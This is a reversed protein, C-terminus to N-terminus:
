NAPEFAPKLGSPQVTKTEYKEKEIIWEKVLDSRVIDQTGFEVVGFSAMRRAIAVLKFFGTTERKLDDQACDGCFLIKCNKGVRTIITNIEQHDMNQIEDVIVICDRLTTGRVYSTTIFEILGKKKLIDYADGRGFLDACIEYYPAEYVMAKEKVNGPLFGMDRSPVASRVIVLKKYDTDNALIEELALFFSLFTKGTGASGILILNLDDDYYDFAVEQNANLPTIQALKVSNHEEHTRHNTKNKNGRSTKIAM